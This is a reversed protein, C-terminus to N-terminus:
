QSNFLKKNIKKKITLNENEIFKRKEKTIHIIKRYVFFYKVKKIFIKKKMKQILIQM